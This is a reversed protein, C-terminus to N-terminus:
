SDAWPVKEGIFAHLYLKVIKNFLCQKLDWREYIKNEPCFNEYIYFDMRIWFLRSVM